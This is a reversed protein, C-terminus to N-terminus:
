APHRPPFQRCLRMGSPRTQRESATMSELVAPMGLIQRHWRTGDHAFCDCIRLSKLDLRGITHRCLASRIPRKQSWQVGIWHPHRVRRPRESLAQLRRLPLLSDWTAQARVYLSPFPSVMKIPHHSRRRQIHFGGLRPRCSCQRFEIRHM